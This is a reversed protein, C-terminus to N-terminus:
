SIASFPLPSGTNTIVHIEKHALGSFTKVNYLITGLGKTETGEKTAPPSTDIAQHVIDNVQLLFIFM